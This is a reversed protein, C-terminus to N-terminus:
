AVWPRDAEAVRSAAPVHPAVARRIDFAYPPYANCMDDVTWDGCPDACSCAAIAASAERARLLSVPVLATIASGGATVVVSGLFRRRDMPNHVAAMGPEKRM